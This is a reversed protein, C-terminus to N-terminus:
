GTRGVTQAWWTPLDAISDLVAFPEISGHLDAERFKGTRVQIGRIACDQAAGVDAEIDDGIMFCNAAVCQMRALSAQFFAAAPKGVVTAECAAANELASVFPAVDLLLGDQGRWYRTMGLAILEPRPVRMLLRFANNMTQYDWSEGLDGIIVAEVTMQSQAAVIEFDTFERLADDSVFAAIRGIQRGKLYEVAAVIPTMLEDGELTFGFSDFKRLLAARSRSSTNTVFLHPIGQTQIWNLTELAGAILHGGQYVVGDLDILLGHNTV